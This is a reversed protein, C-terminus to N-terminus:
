VQGRDTMCVRNWDHSSVRAIGYVKVRVKVEHYTQGQGLGQGRDQGQDM